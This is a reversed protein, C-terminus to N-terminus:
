FKYYKSIKSRINFNFHMSNLITFIKKKVLKRVDKM